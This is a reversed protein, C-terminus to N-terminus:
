VRESKLNSLLEKKAKIIQVDARSLLEFLKNEKSNTEIKNTRAKVNEELVHIEQELQQIM